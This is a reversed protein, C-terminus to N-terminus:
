GSRRSQRSSGPTQQGGHGNAKAWQTLEAEIVRAKNRAVISESMTCGRGVTMARLSELRRYLDMIEPPFSTTPAKRPFVKPGPPLDPRPIFEPQPPAQQSFHKAWGKQVKRQRKIEKEAQKSVWLLWLIFLVLYGLFGTTFGFAALFCLPSALVAIRFWKFTHRRANLIREVGLLLFCLAFFALFGYLLRVLVWHDDIPPTPKPELGDLMSYAVALLM